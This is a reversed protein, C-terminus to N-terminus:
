RKRWLWRVFEWALWAFSLTVLISIILDAYEAATM